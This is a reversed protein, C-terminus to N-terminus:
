RCAPLIVTAARRPSAAIHKVSSYDGSTYIKLKRLRYHVGLVSEQFFLGSCPCTGSLPWHGLLSGLIMLGGTVFTGERLAFLLTEATKVKVFATGGRISPSIGIGAM